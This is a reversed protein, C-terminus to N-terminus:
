RNSQKYQVLVRTNIESTVDLLFPGNRSSIIPYVVAYHLLASAFFDYFFHISVLSV